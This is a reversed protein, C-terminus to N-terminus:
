RRGIEFIRGRYQRQALVAAAAAARKASVTQRVRVRVGQGRVRVTRKGNAVRRVRSVKAGDEPHRSAEQGDEELAVEFRRCYNKLSV